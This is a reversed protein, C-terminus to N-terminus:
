EAFEGRYLRWMRIAAAIPNLARVMRFGAPRLWPLLFCTGHASIWYSIVTAWAAGVGGYDPILLLNLAVNVFAGIVAAVPSTWLWGRITLMAERAGGLFITPLSLLLVLTMPLGGAYPAGFVPVFLLATAAGVLIMAAVSALAMVDYLRQMHGEFREPAKAHARVLSAYFAITLAPPLFLAVEAVRVAVGYLGLEGEPAMQGLMVQDIRTYVMIAISSLFLPWGERILQSALPCSLRIRRIAGTALAYAGGAALALLAAEGARLAVFATLGAGAIVLGLATASVFIAAGIRPVAIWVMRERAMFWANFTDSPMFLLTLGALAMLGPTVGAPGGFVAVAGVALALGALAGAFRLALATGLTAERPGLEVAMRRMLIMELGFSTLPAMLGAISFLYAYGGFREPGLQRAIMTMVIFGIALRIVQEVSLWGANLLKTAPPLDKGVETGAKM